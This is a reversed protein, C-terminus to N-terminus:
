ARCNVLISFEKGPWYHRIEWFIIAWYNWKGKKWKTSEYDYDEELYFLLTMNMLFLSAHLFMYFIFHYINCNNCLRLEM